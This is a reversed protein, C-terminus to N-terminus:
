GENTLVDFGNEGLPISVNRGDMKVQNGFQPKLGEINLWEPLAFEVTKATGKNFIVVSTKDFFHRVYVLADKSSTILEFDGYILSLSNRRLNGLKDATEKTKQEFENLGEFRMMRRNDPDGAGVMGIEDGYFIVPIGPVTMLFATMSSLKQYAKTDKVQVDRKYGAEKPDEDFAVAGSALGMFRTLDHNGTINGMTSHYGYYDFSERLAITLREFSEDDKAFVDRANFYLNFDFQADLLGSNIYSSILEHSGFTEGIQYLSKNNPIMVEEKLKRTLTRWFETQVHKTADHRFGDLNFKKIWYMASDSQIDIVEPKSLDLTPLFTDFWTTLRQEDWIRINKTGDPLELPTVWDPHQQYIPHEQHVHNCVYDLLVNIGNQHATEVLETLEADTGFRFDVKSSSIPWYGHYGSYWRRPEPFEQYAKLPNQTLPSLWLTNIGLKKFYGDKIKQTIGALDGGNYNQIPTLRKDDLPKDNDKNGNKFRDILTFYMTMAEKDERKIDKANALVHGKELPILLDNSLGVGNYSYVRIISRGVQKAEKPIELSIAGDNGQKFPLLQNQWLAFIADPKNFSKILISQGDSKETALKPLSSWAPKEVILLSNFGGMGNTIKKENGPDLMWKGDKVVQYPYRGPNLLLKVSWEKGNQTMPTNAPNWNNIDGVLEVKKPADDFAVKIEVARKLSKKVMLDYVFEGAHVSLVSLPPLNGEIKVELIKKDSSLKTVLAKDSTVSDIKAVDAFYDEMYLTAGEQELIIPTVLGFVASQEPTPFAKQETVAAPKCQWNALAFTFVLLPLLIIQHYKM